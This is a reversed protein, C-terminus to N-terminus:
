GGSPATPAPACAPAQDAPTGSASGGGDSRLTGDAPCDADPHAGIGAAGPVAQRAGPRWTLRFEVGHAPREGASERRTGALSMQLSQGRAWLAGARLERGDPGSSSLAAFPMMSGRGGFASFGYRVQAALRMATDFGYGSLGRADRASWLREAGGSADAGWSPVASLTLGRGPIGPDVRVSASAGWERYASDEHALLYRGAAEISLGRGADAYRLSGGLDFGAGTEADGGDRRVGLRLSPTLLRTPGLAFPRTGELLLRVRSTGGATGGLLGTDGVAEGSGTRAFRVDTRAALELGADTRLLVGRLGAAAYGSVAPRMEGKASESVRKREERSEAVDGTAM